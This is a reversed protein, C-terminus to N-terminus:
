KESIKLTVDSADTNEVGSPLILEASWLDRLYPNLFFSDKKLGQLLSKMGM